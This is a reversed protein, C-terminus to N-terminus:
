KQVVQAQRQQIKIDWKQWRKARKGKNQKKKKTVVGETAVPQTPLASSTTERSVSKSHSPGRRQTGTVGVKKRGIFDHPKPPFTCPIRGHNIHYPLLLNPDLPVWPVSLTSPVQPLNCHAQHLNYVARTVKGLCSKYISVSSDGAVHNLLYSGEQLGMVKKLIHRLINLASVPKFNGFKEKLGEASVEELMFLQSTFADIHGIYFWSNSHLLSETWLRCIESETLAEVGYCAQYEVKPLVYIPYHKRFGKKCSRPKTEAKHVSSRILLLMDDLSFLKYVLNGEEPATYESEDENLFQLESSLFCKQAGSIQSAWDTGPFSSTSGAVTHGPDSPLTVSPKMLLQAAPSHALNTSKDISAVSQEQVKKISPKLLQAQMKLIDGVPDFEKSLRKSPNKVRGKRQEPSLCTPAQIRHPIQIPSLSRPTYRVSSSPSCLKDTEFSDHKKSTTDIVLREDDTDSSFSPMKQHPKQSHTAQKSSDTKMSDDTESEVRDGETIDASELGKFLLTAKSDSLATTGSSLPTARSQELIEYCTQLEKKKTDEAETGVVSSLQKEMRLKESLINNLNQRIEATAEINLRRSSDSITGFTELETVDDEFDMDNNVANESERFKRSDDFFNEEAKYESVLKDLVMASLPVCSKKSMQLDLPVEHFIQSKERVTMEKKPLPTDIYVVKMPKSGKVPLMKVCVPIEWQEKYNLAHNNLLKFLSEATLVIQPCYKVVLKEINPDSGIDKHQEAARKEPFSFTSVTAYDTSLVLQTPRVPFSVKVFRATGLRLLCKELKLSLDTSFKGGMISTIESLTYFEPYNKVYRLGANLLEETYRCADAPIMNYDEACSRAANQAYKLFEEIESSIAAKLNLFYLYEDRDKGMPVYKRNSAYKAMLHVYMKQEKETLSSFYSYPIRPEPFPETVTSSKVDAEDPIAPQSGRGM